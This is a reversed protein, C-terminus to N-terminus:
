DEKVNHKPPENQMIDYSKQEREIEKRFNIPQEKKEPVVREVTGKVFGTKDKVGGIFFGIGFLLALILTRWLGIWMVLAGCTMFVLGMLIGFAPTGRKIEKM